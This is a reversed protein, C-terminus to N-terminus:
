SCCFGGRVELHIAIAPSSAIRMTRPRKKPLSIAIKSPVPVLVGHAEQNDGPARERAEEISSTYLGLVGFM